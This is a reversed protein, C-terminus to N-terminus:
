NRKNSQFSVGPKSKQLTMRFTEVLTDSVGLLELTCRGSHARLSRADLPQRHDLADKLEVCLEQLAMICALTRLDDVTFTDRARALLTELMEVYEAGNSQDIVDSM